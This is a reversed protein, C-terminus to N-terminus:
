SKLYRASSDGPRIHAYHSTTSLSAHGVTQQVVHVPAGRDLSHSVHAHRLDHVSYGLPLGARLLAQKMIAGVMSRDLKRGTATRFVPTEPKAKGRLKIVRQWLPAPLLVARTKGGKGFVTIQGEEGREALDRWCLNCAETVRMGSGYILRLLTEDRRGELCYFLRQVQEESMIHEALRDPIAPLQIPAAVDLQLYGIRLAFKFLAKVSSLKRSISAPALEDLSQAYAQMDGITVSRIPKDTFGRFYRLDQAYAGRTNASRYNGLWIKILTEDNDAQCVAFDRIALM